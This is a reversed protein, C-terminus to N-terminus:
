VQDWYYSHMSLRKKLSKSLMQEKKGLTHAILKAASEVFVYAVLEPHGQQVVYKMQGLVFKFGEGGVKAGSLLDGTKVLSVGIDFNRKFQQEITYNHSHYVVSEAVYKVAHGSKLFKAAAIMDENLITREPFGSIEWFHKGSFASCVNSLFFAKIGLSDIDKATKLKSEAPYNFNRAFRELLGADEYPIQRSFTAVAEQKLIPQVLEDLWRENEPLADQTMFVLIDADKALRAGINRTGGHDFTGPEIIHVTAGKEKAIGVTNDKSNSDIVYVEPQYPVQKAFQAFMKNLYREANLTPIIIAIKPM